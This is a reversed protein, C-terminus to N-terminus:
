AVFHAVDSSDIIEVLDYQWNTIQIGAPVILHNTRGNETQLNSFM